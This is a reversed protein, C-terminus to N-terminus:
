AVNEYVKRQAFLDASKRYQRQKRQIDRPLTVLFQEYRERIMVLSSSLDDALTDSCLKVRTACWM